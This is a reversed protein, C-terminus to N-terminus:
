DIAQQGAATGLADHLSRNPTAAAGDAACFFLCQAFLGTVSKRHQRM